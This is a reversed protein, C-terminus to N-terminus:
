TKSQLSKQLQEDNLLEFTKKLLDNRAEADKILIAANKDVLAM